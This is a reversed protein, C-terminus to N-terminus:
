FCIKAGKQKLTRAEFFLFKSFTKRRFTPLKLSANSFSHWFESSRFFFLNCGFLHYIPRVHFNNQPGTVGFKFNQYQKIQWFVSIKLVSGFLYVKPINSWQVTVFNLKLLYSPAETFIVQVKTLPLGQIYFDKFSAWSKHKRHITRHKTM